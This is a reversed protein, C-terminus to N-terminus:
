VIGRKVHRANCRAANGSCQLFGQVPWASANNEMREIREKAEQLEGVLEFATLYESFVGNVKHGCDPCNIRTMQAQYGTHQLPQSEIAKRSQREDHCNPCILM